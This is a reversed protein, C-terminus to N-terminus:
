HRVRPAPPYDAVPEPPFHEALDESLLPWAVQGELSSSVRCGALYVLTKALDATAIVEGRANEPRIKEGMFFATGAGSQGAAPGDAIPPPMFTLIFADGAKLTALVREVRADLVDLYARMADQVQDFSETDLASEQAAIVRPFEFLATHLAVRGEALFREAVNLRFYDSMMSAPPVALAAVAALLADDAETAPFGRRWDTWPSRADDRLTRLLAPDGYRGSAVPGGAGDLLQRIGSLADGTVVRGAIADGPLMPPTWGVVEVARGTRTVLEWLSPRELVSTEVRRVGPLFRLHRRIVAGFTWRDRVVRGDKRKPVFGRTLDLWAAMPRNADWEFYASSGRLALRAIASRERLATWYTLTRQNVGDVTWWVVRTVPPEALGVSPEHLAIRPGIGVHSLVGAMLVVAPVGIAAVQWRHAGGHRHRRMAHRLELRYWWWLGNAILAFLLVPVAQRVAPSRSALSGDFPSSRLWAVLVITAVLASWIAMVRVIQRLRGPRRSGVWRLGFLLVPLTGVVGIWVTALLGGLTWRAARAVSEAATRDAIFGGAVVATVLLASLFISGNLWTRRWIARRRGAASAARVNGRDPRDGM